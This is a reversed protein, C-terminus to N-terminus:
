GNTKCDRSTDVLSWRRSGDGPIRSNVRAAIIAIAIVKNGWPTHDANITVLRRCTGEIGHDTSIM